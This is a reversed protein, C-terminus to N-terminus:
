AVKLISIWQFDFVVKNSDGSRLKKYSIHLMVFRNSVFILFNSALFVNKQGSHTSKIYIM